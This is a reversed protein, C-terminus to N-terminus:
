AAVEPTARVVREALHAPLPLELAACLKAIDQRDAKLTQNTGALYGYYGFESKTVEVRELESFHEHEEEDFWKVRAQFREVRYLDNEAVLTSLRLIELAEERKVEFKAVTPTEGEFGCHTDAEFQCVKTNDRNTIIKLTM